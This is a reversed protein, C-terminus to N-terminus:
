EGKGRGVINGKDRDQINGMVKSQNVRIWELLIDIKGNIESVMDTKKDIKSVTFGIKGVVCLIIGYLVASFGVAKGLFPTVGPFVGTLVLVGGVITLLGLGYLFTSM